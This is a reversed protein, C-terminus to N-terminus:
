VVTYQADLATDSATNSEALAIVKLFETNVSKTDNVHPYSEDPIPKGLFPCIKEWTIGDQLDLVLLRDAPVNELVWANHAEYRAKMVEPEDEFKQGDIFAGQLFITKFMRRSRIAYDKANEPLEDRFKYITNLVSKYWSDPDRKTLIVKANPYYDFLRDLFSITPCDAAASFGEYLEDWDVPKEPHLYAEEFVEPKRDCEYMSRMHHTNYGLMNLATRLSDTGTRSMGAGIVELPAM